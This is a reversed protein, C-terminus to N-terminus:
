PLNCMHRVGCDDALTTRITSEPPGEEFESRSVVEIVVNPEPFDRNDLLESAAM